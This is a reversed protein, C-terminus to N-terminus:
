HSTHLSGTRNTAQFGRVTMFIEASYLRSEDRHCRGEYLEDSNFCPVQKDVHKDFYGAM